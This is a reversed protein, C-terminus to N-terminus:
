IYIYIELDIINTDDSVLGFGFELTWELTLNWWLDGCCGM